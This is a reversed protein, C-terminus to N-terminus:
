ISLTQFLEFEKKLESIAIEIEELTNFRGLSFRLSSNLQDDELNMAKLVHSPEIVFSNCASGNSIAVKRLKGTFSIAEIGPFSINSTNIMRHTRSGNIKAGPFNLLENELKDRLNKIRATEEQFREKLITIAVSMGIIGPANLTGSRLGREHGGGHLLPHSKLFRQTRENVYVGGVGKPGYFKHASFCFADVGISEIDIELRGLAQTADTFVVAGVKKSVECIERIPQLVGTENNAMMVSVLTTDNRLNEQFIKLDIIGDANVDLYTVDFGISELYKCSDIVGKHETKVTLIHKGEHQRGFAIGKLIFNIGETAGGNFVLENEQCNFFNAIKKKAEAIAASVKQGGIHNSSANFYLEHLFPLMANVVEPDV